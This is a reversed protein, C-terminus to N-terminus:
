RKELKDAEEKGKLAKVILDVLEKLAKLNGEIIEQGKKEREAHFERIKDYPEKLFDESFATTIDGELLDIRTMILKVKGAEYDIKKEQENWTFNGIITRIELTKLNEIKQIITDIFSM